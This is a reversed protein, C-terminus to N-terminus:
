MSNRGNSDQFKDNRAYLKHARFGILRKSREKEKIENFIIKRLCIKTNKKIPNQSPRHSTTYISLSHESKTIQLGNGTFLKQFESMIEKDAKVKFRIILVIKEQRLFM